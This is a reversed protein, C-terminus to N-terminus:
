KFIKDLKSDQELTYELYKFDDVCDIEVAYETLFPISHDGHINNNRRINSTVLIDVYGNAQYTKPFAQRPANNDLRFNKSVGIPKLFNSEDIELTKYATESMEHVSRLSSCEGSNQALKIAANLILPDRIPTTPRLHVIYNPEMSEDKFFNLAHEVFEFDTSTDDSIEDPRMFPIDAGYRIAIDAYEKSNTSVVVRDILKSKKAAAISWGLLPHGNLKMINKDPVGKSGSRAPILAYTKMFDWYIKSASAPISGANVAKCAAAYGSQWGAL